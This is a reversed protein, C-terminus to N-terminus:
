ISMTKNDLLAKPEYRKAKGSHSRTAHSSPPKLPYVVNKALGVCLAYLMEEGRWNRM